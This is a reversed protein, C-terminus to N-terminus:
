STRPPSRWSTRTNQEILVQCEPGFTPDPAFYYVLINADLFVAANAPIQNFRM